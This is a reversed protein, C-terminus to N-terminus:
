LAQCVKSNASSCMINCMAYFKLRPMGYHLIGPSTKFLVHVFQETKVIQQVYFVVKSTNLNWSRTTYYVYYSNKSRYPVLCTSKKQWMYVCVYMCLGVRGFAYGQQAYVCLTIVYFNHKTSTSMATCSDLSNLM